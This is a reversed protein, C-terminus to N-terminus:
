ATSVRHATWIVAAVRHDQQPHRAGRNAEHKPVCALTAIIETDTGVDSAGVM